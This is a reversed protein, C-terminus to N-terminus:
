TKFYLCIITLASAGRLTEFVLLPEKELLTLYIIWVDETGTLLIQDFDNSIHNKNIGWSDM